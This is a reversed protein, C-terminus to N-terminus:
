PQCKNLGNKCNASACQSDTSCTQGNALKCMANGDCAQTGNCSVTANDDALGRPINTCKGLAGSVNCAKCTATCDNECCYGDTCFGHLCDNLMACPQGDDKKCVGNGDCSSTAICPLGANADKQGSPLLTCTGATVPSGNCTSCIGDCASECCVGDVCYGSFCESATTCTKGNSQKCTGFGDCADNQGDGCITGVPEPPNSPTGDSNCADQTCANDDIPVDTSEVKTVTNGAGDCIRVYCDKPTQNAAPLKTGDATYSVGCVGDICTPQKCFDFSGTCDTSNFCGVCKGSDDCHSNLGCDTGMAVKTHVESGNLCTDITCGNDDNPADNNDNIETTGGFGNCVVIKCDGPQQLAASAPAENGLYKTQCTHDICARKTCQDEVINVCHEAVTCEVCAGQGDCVMPSGSTCQTGELVVQLKCFGNSCANTKCASGTPPCDDTTTCEIGGMGGAGGASGTGGASSASSNGDVFTYPGDADILQACGGAGVLLGWFLRHRLRM